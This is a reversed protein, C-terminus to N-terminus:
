PRSRVWAKPRLRPASWTSDIAVNGVVRFDTEADVLRAIIDRNVDTAIGSGQKPYSVWFVPYPVTRSRLLPVTTRLGAASTVFVQVFALPTGGGSGNELGSAGPM